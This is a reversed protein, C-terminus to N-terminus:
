RVIHHFSAEVQRSIDQVEEVWVALRWPHSAKGLVGSFLQFFFDGELIPNCVGLQLLQRCGILLAFVQVENADLCDM